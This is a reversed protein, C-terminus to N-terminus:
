PTAGLLHRGEDWWTATPTRRTNSGCHVEGMMLHYNQWDDLWHTHLGKPLLSEIEAIFPDDEQGQDTGRLFPDAIFAHVEGDPQTYITMNITGPILSLGTGNCWGVREFLAPIFIIDDLDLNADQMVTVLAPDLGDAQLSENYDRLTEDDLIEGITSYGHGSQYKPIEMGPDLTELFAYALGTDAYLLRFGKPATDDPVFTMFEDVHGVCMFSTDVVFPSQVRQDALMTALKATLHGDYGQGYYIRGYPYVVGDVTIPPTVELNGFSDQSSAMGGGWTAVAVDPEQLLNEAFKDLATGDNTRISDIVVDMRHDPVTLTAFEIEDQIWVDGGYRNLPATLLDDGLVDQFGTVFATNGGAGPASMALEQESAQHHNNLILPASLLPVTAEFHDSVMSIAASDLFGAFEVLLVSSADAPEVTTETTTADLVVAGDLWVRIDTPDGTLQLEVPGDATPLPLPFLDNDDPAGVDDWDIVGNMDDDDINALGLLEDPVAPDDPGGQPTGSSPKDPACAVLGLLLGLISAM